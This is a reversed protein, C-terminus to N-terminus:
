FQNAHWLTITQNQFLWWFTKKQLFNSFVYRYTYPYCHALYVTDNDHPFNITFTLTFSYGEDEDFMSENRYYRINSGVRSWGVFHKEAEIQSYLVPKMGYNYLSDPKSFNVISFRYTIDSRMNQVQFSLHFIVWNWAFKLAITTCFPAISAGFFTCLPAYLKTVWKFTFGNVTNPLTTIQGWISKM